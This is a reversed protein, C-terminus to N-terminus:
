KRRRHFSRRIASLKGAYFARAVVWVLAYLLIPVFLVIAITAINFSM